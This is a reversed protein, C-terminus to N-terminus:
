STAVSAALSRGAERGDNLATSIPRSLPGSRATSLITWLERVTKIAADERQASALYADCWEQSRQELVLWSRELDRIAASVEDLISTRAVRTDSPALKILQNLSALADNRARTFGDQLSTLDDNSPLTFAKLSDSIPKLQEFSALEELTEVMALLSFTERLAAPDSIRSGDATRVLEICEDGDAASWCVVAVEGIAPECPMLAKLTAGAPLDINDMLTTLLAEPRNDM